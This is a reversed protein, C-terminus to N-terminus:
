LLLTMTAIQGHHISWLMANDSWIWRDFYQSPGTYSSSHISYMANHLLYIYHQSLLRHCHVSSCLRCFTSIISHESANLAYPSDLSNRDMEVVVPIQLNWSFMDVRHYVSLGWYYSVLAYRFNTVTPHVILHASSPLVAVLTALFSCVYNNGNNSVPLGLADFM